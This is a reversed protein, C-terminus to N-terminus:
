RSVDVFELIQAVDITIWKSLRRNFNWVGM